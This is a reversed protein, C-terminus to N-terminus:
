EPRELWVVGYERFKELADVAQRRLEDDDGFRWMFAQTPPKALTERNASGGARTYRIWQEEPIQTPCVGATTWMLEGLTASRQLFRPLRFRDPSAGVHLDVLFALGPSLLERSAPAVVFEVIAYRSGPMDKVFYGTLEDRARYEYGMEALAPAVTARILAGAKMARDFEDDQLTRVGADELWPIGYQRLKEVSDALAGRLAQVDGPTWWRDQQPFVRAGSLWMLHSLRYSRVRAPGSSHRVQVTFELGVPREEYQHRVYTIAREIGDAGIKKFVFHLQRDRLLDDYEYGLARLAPSVEKLLIQKFGTM